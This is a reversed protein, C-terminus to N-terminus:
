YNKWKIKAKPDKKNIPKEDYANRLQTGYWVKGQTRDSSSVLTNISFMNKITYKDNYPSLSTHNGMIDYAKIKDRQYTKKIIKNGNYEEKRYEINFPRMIYNDNIRGRIDEKPLNNLSYTSKHSQINIDSNWKHLAKENRNNNNFERLNISYNMLPKSIYTGHNNNNARFFHMYKNIESFNEINNISKSKQIPARRQKYKELDAQYFGPEGAIKHKRKAIQDYLRLNLVWKTNYITEKNNNDFLFRFNNINTSNILTTFPRLKKKNKATLPSIKNRKLNIRMTAPIKNPRASIIKRRTNEDSLELDNNEKM